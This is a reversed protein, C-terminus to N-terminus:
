WGREGRDKEERARGVVVVFPSVFLLLLFCFGKKNQKAFKSLREDIEDMEMVAEVDCRVGGCM